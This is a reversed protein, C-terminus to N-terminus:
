KALVDTRHIPIRVGVRINVQLVRLREDPFRRVLEVAPLQPWCEHGPFDGDPWQVRQPDTAQDAELILFRVPGSIHTSQPSDACVESRMIRSRDITPEAYFWAERPTILVAAPDNRMQELVFRRAESFEYTLRLSPWPRPEAGLVIRRWVLGQATPVFAAGIEVATMVVFVLLYARSSWAIATLRRPADASDMTALCYAICVALPRLPEYYRRDVVYGYTGFLMCTWLFVPLLILLGAAVVRLDYNWSTVPQRTATVLAVPIWVLVIGAVLLAPLEYGTAAWFRVTGPLWFFVGANAAALMPLTEWARAGIAGLRAGDLSVGGPAAGSFTSLIVYGQIAVGPLLGSGFAALRKAALRGRLRSQALIVLVAYPVLFLSAYRALVCVGILLGALADRKVDLQAAEDPARTLFMLVWPVAAWLAIDTGGWPSTFLVPSAAAIWLSVSLWFRSTRDPRGMYLFALRGWGWWGALTAVSGWIKGFAAPAVGVAMMAAAFFSYGASYHTMGHLALPKSLDEAARWYIVLGKGELLNQAAQIQITIDDVGTAHLLRVITIVAAASLWPLLFKQETVDQAGAGPVASGASHHRANTRAPPASM